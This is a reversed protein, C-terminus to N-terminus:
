GQVFAYTLDTAPLDGPRCMWGTQGPCYQNFFKTERSQAMLDPPVNQNMIVAKLYDALLISQTGQGAIYHMIGRQFRQYIFNPNTPEPAPQSIPAGWIALGGLSNFTQLFNVPQGNFTDPVNTNIFNVIDTAYTPSSVPPTNAKLTADPGPFTSGNVQTYPFWEPDLLNILAVGAGGCVQIIHRQFMQVPCGQMTIMRSVPYGFATAGGYQQFFAWIQDDDIRYGTQSFYREDHAMAPANPAPQAPAPAPQTAPAPTATPQATPAPTASAALLAYSQTVTRNSTGGTVTLDYNGPQINMPMNFTAQATGTTDATGTGVTAGNYMFTVTEGAQFNKATVTLPSGAAAQAVSFSLAPAGQTVTFSTTASNGSARGTALVAYQGPQQDPVTFSLAFNGQADATPTGVSQGNFTVDAIETPKFGRGNATIQAGSNGSTASLSLAPAVTSQPTATAGTAAAGPTPTAPATTGQGLATTPMVMLVAIVFVLVVAGARGVLEAPRAPPSSRHQTSV